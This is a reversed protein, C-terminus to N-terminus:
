ATLRGTQPSKTATGDVELTVTAGWGLHMTLPLREGVQAGGRSDLAALWPALPALVSERPDCPVPPAERGAIALAPTSRLSLRMAGSTTSDLAFAIARCTADSPANGVDDLSPEEDWATFVLWCGAVGPEAVISLAALLGEGVAETGGGVGINPGHMGLGVSVASATAHLSCQPVVHPSVTVPGGDRYQVLTRASAPRGAGCTAAVVGWRDFSEVEGRDGAPASWGAMARQVARVGVVTHDDAHRLFRAPLQPVGAPTALDRVAGLAASREAVTAHARITCTTVRSM